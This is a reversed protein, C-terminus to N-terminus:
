CTSGRSACVSELHGLIWWSSTLKVNKGEIIKQPWCNGQVYIKRKNLAKSFIWSPITHGECFCKGFQHDSWCFYPSHKHVHYSFCVCLHRSNAYSLTFTTSEKGNLTGLSRWASSMFIGLLLICSHQHVGIFAPTNTCALLGSSSASVPPSTFQAVDHSRDWSVMGVEFWETDSCYELCSGNSGETITWNWSKSIGLLKRSCSPSLTECCFSLVHLGPSPIM